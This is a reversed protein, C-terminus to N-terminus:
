SAWLFPIALMGAGTAVMIVATIGFGRVEGVLGRLVESRTGAYLHLARGFPGRGPVLAGGAVDFRGILCVTTGVPVHEEDISLPDADPRADFRRAAFDVSKGLGDRAALRQEEVGEIDGAPGALLRDLLAVVADRHDRGVGMLHM